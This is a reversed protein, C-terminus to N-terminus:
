APRPRAAATLLLGAAAWVALVAWPGASRAGDFYAVSRLLTALADSPLCQGAMGWSGPLM